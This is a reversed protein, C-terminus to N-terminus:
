ITEKDQGNPLTDNLSAQMASYNPNHAFAEAQYVSEGYQHIADDSTKVRVVDREAEDNLVEAAFLANAEDEYEYAQETNGKGDDYDTHRLVVFKTVTEVTYHVKKM